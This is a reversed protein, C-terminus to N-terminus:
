EPRKTQNGEYREKILQAAISVAIEEPTESGIPLGIPAKIRDIDSKTYGDKEQLMQFTKAVKESSGIMGLYFPRYQLVSSIVTYDHQHGRTMIVVYDQPKITVYDLIEEFNAVIIRSSLPFREANAFESRDDYIVTNFDLASLLPALRFSIHGAGFLYVTDPVSLPQAFYSKKNVHYFVCETKALNRVDTGSLAPFASLMESLSRCVSFSIGNESIGFIVWGRKGNEQIDVIKDLLNLARTDESDFYQYLVTDKGGCTMGLDGSDSLDFSQLFSRRDRLAQLALAQCRYELEGGGITGFAENECCVMTAGSKRPSPGVSEAVTILEANKGSLLKNKLLEYKM